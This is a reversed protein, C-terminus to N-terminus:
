DGLERGLHSHTASSQEWHKELAPGLGSVLEGARSGTDNDGLKALAEGLSLGPEERYRGSNTV